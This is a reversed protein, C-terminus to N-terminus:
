YQFIQYDINYCNFYRFKRHDVDRRPKYHNSCLAMMATGSLTLQNKILILTFTLICAFFSQGILVATKATESQCTEWASLLAM